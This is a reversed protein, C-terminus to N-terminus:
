GGRGWFLDAEPSEITLKRTVLCITLFPQALILHHAEPVVIPQTDTEWIQLSTPLNPIVKQSSQGVFDIDYGYM